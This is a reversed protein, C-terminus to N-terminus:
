KRLRNCPPQVSRRPSQASGSKSHREGDGIALLSLTWVNDPRNYRRMIRGVIWGVVGRPRGPQGLHTAM